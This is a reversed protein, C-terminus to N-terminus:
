LVKKVLMQPTINKHIPLMIIDEFISSGIRQAENDKFSVPTDEWLLLPFGKNMLDKAITRKNEAKDILYAAVYPVDVERSLLPTAEPYLRSMIYNMMDLNERRLYAAKKLETYTYDCLTHYSARSIKKPKRNRTSDTEGYKRSRSPHVGYSLIIKQLSKEAYWAATETEEQMGGYLRQMRSFVTDGLESRGNNCFLVEGDMLPLQKYPCFIVFDGSTGMKGTPYLVHTCDEILLAGSNKCIEKARSISGSFGGFFHTIVFADFKSGKAWEKIFEWDPNLNADIPYYVTKVWNEQLVPISRKSYFDPVLIVIQDKNGETRIADAILCISMYPESLFLAESNIEEYYTTNTRQANRRIIQKWTPLPAEFCM